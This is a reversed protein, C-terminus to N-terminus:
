EALSHAQPQWLRMEKKKHGPDLPVCQCTRHMTTAIDSTMTNMATAKTMVKLTTTMTTMTLMVSREPGQM